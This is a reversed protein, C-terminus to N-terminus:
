SPSSSLTSASESSGPYELEGELTARPRQPLFSPQVNGNYEGHLCMLNTSAVIRATLGTAVGTDTSVSLKERLGVKGRRRVETSSQELERQGMSGDGPVSTVEGGDEALGVTPSEFRQLVSCPWVYVM